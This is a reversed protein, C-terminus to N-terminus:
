RLAGHRAPSNRRPPRRPRRPLAPPSLLAGTSATGSGSPECKGQVAVALPREGGPIARSLLTNPLPAEETARARVTGTVADAPFLRSATRHLMGDAPPQEAARAPTRPLISHVAMPDREVRHARDSKTTAMSAEQASLQPSVHTRLPHTIPLPSRGVARSVARATARGSFPRSDLFARDLSGSIRPGPSRLHRGKPPLPEVEHHFGSLPFGTGSQVAPLLFHVHGGPQRAVLDKPSKPAAWILALPGPRNILTDTEPLRITTPWGATATCWSRM